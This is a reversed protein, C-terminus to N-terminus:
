VNNMLGIIKKATNNGLFRFVPRYLVRCDQSQSIFDVNTYPKGYWVLSSDIITMPNLAFYQKRIKINEKYLLKEIGKPTHNESFYLEINCNSEILIPEINEWDEKVDDTIFLTIKEKANKLDVFFLDNVDKEDLLSLPKDKEKSFIEKYDIKNGVMNMQNFYQVSVKSKDTAGSMHNNMYEYNLLNIFKGKARTMAVNFLRDAMQNENNTILVSPYQNTYCDPVDYIIIDQESGQFSHVTSCVIKYKYNEEISENIDRIIANILRSQDAYPTIIGVECEQANKQALSVAAFASLINFYSGGRSHMNATLLGTTDAILMPKNPLPELATIHATKEKMNEASTILDKYIKQSIFTAIGPNMRRQVPLLVLWKHYHKALSLKRLGTFDYIDKNLISPPQDKPKNKDSDSGVIPPLQMFDGVCVFHKIALGAAFVIQPVNLMSAEDVIVVDFRSEYLIKDMCAKAVTTAVFSAEKVLQKEFNKLKKKIVKLETIIQVVMHQKM